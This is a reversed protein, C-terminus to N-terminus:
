GAYLPISFQFNFLAFKYYAVTLFDDYLGRNTLKKHSEVINEVWEM